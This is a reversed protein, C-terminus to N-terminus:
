AVSEVTLDLRPRNGKRIYTVVGEDSNTGFTMVASVYRLAQSNTDGLAAIQEATVEIVIYDFLADPENAVSHTAVVVDTGGGASDDNGHVIFTLASTGVTRLFTILISDFDRMDVWAIDNATTNGPDFDYHTVAIESLLKQVKQAM